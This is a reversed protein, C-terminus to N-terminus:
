AAEKVVEFRIVNQARGAWEGRACTLRLAGNIGSSALAVFRRAARPPLDLQFKHGDVELHLRIYQRAKFHLCRTCNPDSGCEDSSHVFTEHKYLKRVPHADIVKALLEPRFSSGDDFGQPTVRLLIPEVRTSDLVDGNLIFTM